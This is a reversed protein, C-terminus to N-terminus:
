GTVLAVGFWCKQVKGDGKRPKDTKGRQRFWANFVRPSPKFNEDNDECWQDFAHRMHKVPVWADPRDMVLMEDAFRGILDCDTRYGATAAQVSKPARLIWRDARVMEAGALLWNLIGSREAKLKDCLDPDVQNDPIRVTWDLLHVRDWISDSTDKILPLTNTMLITKHTVRFEFYDQRMLRATMTTEGTMMKVLDVSLEMNPRTESAIVLRAGRMNALETPHEDHRKAALLGRPAVRAYSGLLGRWTDACVSKGNRGAGYWIPFVRSPNGGRLCYGGLRQLYDIKDADGAMWTRVCESWLPCTATADFSVDAKHTMMDAPDHQRVRM